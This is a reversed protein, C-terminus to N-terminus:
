LQLSWRGLTKEIKEGKITLHM